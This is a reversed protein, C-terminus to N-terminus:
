LPVNEILIRQKYIVFNEIIFTTKFVQQIFNEFSIESNKINMFNPNEVSDIGGEDIQGFLPSSNTILSIESDNLIQDSLTDSLTDFLPLSKEDSPFILKEILNEYTENPSKM